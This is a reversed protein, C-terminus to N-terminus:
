FTQPSQPDIKEPDFAGIQDRLHESEISITFVCASM